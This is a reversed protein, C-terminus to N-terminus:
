AIKEAMLLRLRARDEVRDAPWDPALDQIWQQVNGMLRERTSALCDITPDDLVNALAFLDARRESITMYDLADSMFKIGRGSAPDLEGAALHAVGHAYALDRMGGRCRRSVMLTPPGFYGPLGIEHTITGLDGEIIDGGLRRAIERMHAVTFRCSTGGYAM